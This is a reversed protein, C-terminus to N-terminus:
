VIVTFLRRLSQSEGFHLENMIVFECYLGVTKLALKGMVATVATIGVVTQVGTADVDLGTRRQVPGREVTVQGDHLPQQGVAGRRALVLDVPERREHQGGPLAVRADDLQQQRVCVVDVLHVDM